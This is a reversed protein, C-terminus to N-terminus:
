SPSFELNRRLKIIKELNERWIEHRKERSVEWNKEKKKMSHDALAMYVHLLNILEM